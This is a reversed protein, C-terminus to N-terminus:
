ADLNESKKTEHKKKKQLGIVFLFGFFCSRLFINFEVKDFLTLNCKHHLYETRIHRSHMVHSKMGCVIQPLVYVAVPLCVCICLYIFIYIHIYMYLLTPTHTNINMCTHTYTYTKTNANTITYLLYM